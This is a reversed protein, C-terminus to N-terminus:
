APAQEAEALVARTAKLHRRLKRSAVLATPAAVVVFQLRDHLLFGAIALVTLTAVVHASSTDYADRTRGLCYPELSQRLRGVIRLHGVIALATGMVAFLAIASAGGDDRAGLVLPLRLVIGMVVMAHGETGRAAHLIAGVALLDLAVDGAAFIAAFSRSPEMDSLLRVGHLAVLGFTLALKADLVAAHLEVALAPAPMAVIPLDRPATALRRRLRLASLAISFASAGSILYTSVMGTPNARVRDLYAALTAPPPTVTLLRWSAISVVLAGALAWTWGTARGGISQKTQWAAGLFGLWACLPCIAMFSGLAHSYVPVPVPTAFLMRVTQMTGMMATVTALAASIAVLRRLWPRKVSRSFLALGLPVICALAAKALLATTAVRVSGSPLGQPILCGHVHSLCASAWEIAMLVVGAISAVAVVLLGRRAAVWPDPIAAISPPARYPEVRTM